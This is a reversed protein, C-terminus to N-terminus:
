SEDSEEKEKPLKDADRLHSYDTMGLNLGWEM